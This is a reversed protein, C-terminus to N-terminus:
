MISNRENTCHYIADCVKKAQVRKQFPETFHSHLVVNVGRDVVINETKKSPPFKFQISRRMINGPSDIVISNKKEGLCIKHCFWLNNGELVIVHEDRYLHFEVSLATPKLLAVEAIKTNPQVPLGVSPEQLYSKLFKGQYDKM